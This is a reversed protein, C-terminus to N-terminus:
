FDLEEEACYKLGRSKKKEKKKKKFVLHSMQEKSM